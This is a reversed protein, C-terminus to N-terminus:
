LLGAKRFLQQRHQENTLAGISELEEDITTLLISRRVPDQILQNLTWYIGRLRFITHNRQQAARQKDSSAM